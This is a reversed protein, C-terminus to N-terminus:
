LSRSKVLDSGVEDVPRDSKRFARGYELAELFAEEDSIPGIFGDLWNDSSSQRDVKKQLHTVTRELDALRREITSEDLM